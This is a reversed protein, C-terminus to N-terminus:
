RRSSRRCFCSAARRFPLPTAGLVAAAEEVSVDIDELVPQVARVVFPLGVFTMALVAGLPEFAIRVGLPELLRGVPGHKAYITTLAIGAVATPLALPLDVLV